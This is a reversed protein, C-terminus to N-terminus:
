PFQKANAMMLEFCEQGPESPLTRFGTIHAYQLNDGGEQL